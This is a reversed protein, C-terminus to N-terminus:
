RQSGHDCTFRNEHFHNDLLLLGLIKIALEGSWLLNSAVPLAKVHACYAYFSGSVRYAIHWSLHSVIGAIQIGSKDKWSNEISEVIMAKTRKRAEPQMRTRRGTDTYGQSPLTSENGAHVLSFLCTNEVLVPNNWYYMAVSGRVHEIHTRQSTSSRSPIFFTQKTRAEQEREILNRRIVFLAHIIDEQISRTARAATNYLLKM